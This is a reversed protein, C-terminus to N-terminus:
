LIKIKSMSVLSTYSYVKEWYRPIERRDTPQVSTMEIEPTLPSGAPPRTHSTFTNTRIVGRLVEGSQEARNSGNTTQSNKQESIFTEDTICVM